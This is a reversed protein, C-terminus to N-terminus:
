ELFSQILIFKSEDIGLYFLLHSFSFSLMALICFALFVGILIAILFKKFSLNILDSVVAASYVGSGPLPVSIFLAVGFVGYKEVFPAIKKQVRLVYKEYYRQIFSIKQILFLFKRFVIYAIIGIIINTIYIVPFLIYLPTQLIIIGFPVSLRLEFLPLVTLVILVFITQISVM